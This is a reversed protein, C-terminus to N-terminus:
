YRRTRTGKKWYIREIYKKLASTTGAVQTSSAYEIENASYIYNYKVKKM